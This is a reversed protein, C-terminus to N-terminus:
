SKGLRYQALTTDLDIGIFNRNYKQCVLGVTGTGCFPDLVWDNENSSTLIPTEILDTNFTAYHAGKFPKVTIKWVTRKIRMLQENPEWVKGSYLGGVEKSTKNGGFRIKQKKYSELIKKKTKSPEQAKAEKYDKTENGNYELNKYKYTMPEYPVNWVFGKNSKTFYYIYEFDKTYNAKGQPTCNPKHWIITNRKNYGIGETLNKSLTEPVNLMTGNKSTDSINLYLSGTPKLIRHCESFVLRLQAIYKDLTDNGYQKDNKYNRLSYYPPSTVILNVSESELTRLIEYTDGQLLTHM